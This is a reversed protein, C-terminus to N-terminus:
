LWWTHTPPVGSPRELEEKSHILSDYSATCIYPNEKWDELAEDFTELSDSEKFISLYTELTHDEVPWHKFDDLLFQVASRFIFYSPVDNHEFANGFSFICNEIEPIVKSMMPGLAAEEEKTLIGNTDMKLDYVHQLVKKAHRHCVRVNDKKESVCNLTEISNYLSSM